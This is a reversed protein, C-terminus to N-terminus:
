LSKLAREAQQKYKADAPESAPASVIFEYTARAKAKDGTEAYIQALDIRHVLRDPDVAVAQEMYRVADKWSATGFVQGGLFNKAMFRSMGNLRMIEANWMGMIHLAASHRPNYKLAELAEARVDGAYKVRDKTGLTLATRGLARALAAHGEADRPNLTVARRAHQEATRYLTKQQAGSAAEGAEVAAASARWQAEYSTSDAALALEYHRLAAAGHERQGARIHDAASGQAGAIRATFLTAMLVAVRVPTRLSM